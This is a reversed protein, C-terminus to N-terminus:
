DVLCLVFSIVSHDFSHYFLKQCATVACLRLGESKQTCRKTVFTQKIIGGVGGGACFLLYFKVFAAPNRMSFADLRSPLAWRIIEENFQM